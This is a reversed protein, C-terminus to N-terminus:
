QAALKDQDLIRKMADLTETSVHHEIGESDAVATAESVGMALLFAKVIKHRELCRAALRKGKATLKLPRYPERTVFGDRVLRGVTNNVTAHTVQFFEVLDGPRCVGNRNVFEAIAEVYDEVMETAHDTRTRRHVNEM